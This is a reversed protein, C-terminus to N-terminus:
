KPFTGWSFPAFASEGGMMMAEELGAASAVAKTVELVQQHARDLMTAEMVGVGAKPVWTVVELITEQRHLHRIEAVKMHTFLKWKGPDWSVM